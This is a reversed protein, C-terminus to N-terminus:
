ASAVTGFIATIVRFAYPPAYAHHRALVNPRIHVIRPGGRLDRHHAGLPGDVNEVLALDVRGFIWVGRARGLDRLVPLRKGVRITAACRPNM